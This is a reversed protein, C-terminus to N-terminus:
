KLKSGNYIPAKVANAKELYEQQEAEKKDTIDVLRDRWTIFLWIINTYLKDENNVNAKSIFFYLMWVTSLYTQHLSQYLMREDALGYQCNMAFWELENLLNCIEDEFELQLFEGNIVQVVDNEGLTTYSSVTSTREEPSCSRCIKANLLHRPDIKTMRKEFEDFSLESKDLFRLLEEKDFDKLGRLEFASRIMETIGSARFVSTIDGYKDIVNNAYYKALNCAAEKKCRDKQHRYAKYAYWASLAAIIVMLTDMIASIWDGTLTINVTLAPM